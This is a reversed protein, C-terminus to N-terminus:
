NRYYSLMSFTINLQYNGSVVRSIPLFRDRIDPKLCNKDRIFPLFKYVLSLFFDTSKLSDRILLQGKYLRGKYTAEVTYTHLVPVNRLCM